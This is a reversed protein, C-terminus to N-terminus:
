TQIPGVEKPDASARLPTFRTLDGDGRWLEEDGVALHRHRVQRVADAGSVASEVFWSVLWTERVEVWYGRAEKM